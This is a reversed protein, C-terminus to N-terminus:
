HTKAHAKNSRLLLLGFVIAFTDIFVVALLAMPSHLALMEPFFIQCASGLAVAGPVVLAARVVAIVFALLFISGKQTSAAVNTNTNNVSTM